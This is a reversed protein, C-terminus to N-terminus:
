AHEMAPKRRLVLADDDIVIHSSFFDPHREVLVTRLLARVGVEEPLGYTLYLQYAANKVADRDMGRLDPLFPVEKGADAELIYKAM